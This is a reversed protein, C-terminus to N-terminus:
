LPAVSRPLYIRVRTGDGFISSLIADGGSQRVFGVVQSLGLGTGLGFPKTTFFPEFVHQMVDPTMGIGTDAIEIVIFEGQDDLHESPEVTGAAVNSTRIAITGSDPIADRANFLLNLIANQLQSPDVHVPWIADDLHTELTIGGQITPRSITLTEQVLDNVSTRKAVLPQQRAFALLKHTIAAAREAGTMADNVPDLLMSGKPLQREVRELNAVVINLMNNVDHAVGGSLKGIAEMRQSQRLMAEAKDRETDARRLADLAEDREAVRAMLMRNVQQLQEQSPVAVAKPLLPWLVCATALSIVATLMKVGAEIAYDPHWITWISLFHTTGCALIFAAFAWLVWNFRVDPRRMVFSALVLPISFYSLGIILDSLAHAWILEPRWLLCIGHPSLSDDELLRRFFDLM